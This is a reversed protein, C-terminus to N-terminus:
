REGGKRRDWAGIALGILVMALIQTVPVLALYLTTMLSRAENSAM